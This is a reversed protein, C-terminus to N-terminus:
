KKFVKWTKGGQRLIVVGRYNTSQADLRTGDLMYLEYPQTYDPQSSQQETVARIGTSTRKGKVKLAKMEWTPCNSETSLYHFVIQIKKGAYAELSIKGADVFKWDTGAPWTPITLEETSGDVLVEVKLGDKKGKNLAHQFELFIESCGTLDIEPTTLTAESAHAKGGFYASAKYHKYKNDYYWLGKSGEPKVIDKRTLKAFDAELNADYIVGDEQPKVEGGGGPQGPDPLPTPAFTSYRNDDSATTIAKEPDFAVNVSDGWIYEALFPFDIFPNRNGQIRYVVDNRQTEINDVKDAKAWSRYLKSAWDRLSPYNGPQMTKLGTKQWSYDQYTVAMYMYTRSFDGKWTNGPEWMMITEGGADGTGVKDYGEGSDKIVNTVKGMPHNSKAGNDAAPSPYLHHIDTYGDNKAGGWWSKPFSHEINMGAVAAKDHGNEFYFKEGSYRNRVEKDGIRDTYYFADWTNGTGRGYGLHKHKKLLQHLADKLESKKKGKISAYYTALDNRKSASVVTFMSTALLITFLRLLHKKM